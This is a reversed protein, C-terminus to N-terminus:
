LIYKKDVLTDLLTFIMQTNRAGCFGYLKSLNKSQNVNKITSYYRKYFFIVKFFYVLQVVLMTMGIKRFKQPFNKKLPPCQRCHYVTEGM